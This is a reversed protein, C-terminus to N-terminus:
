GTKDGAMIAMSSKLCGKAREWYWQSIIFDGHYCYLEHATTPCQESCKVPMM